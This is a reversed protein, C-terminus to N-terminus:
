PQLGCYKKFKQSRVTLPKAIVSFSHQHPRSRGIDGRSGRHCMPSALHRPSSCRSSASRAASSSGSRALGSMRWRRSGDPRASVSVKFRHRPFHSRLHLSCSPSSSSRGLSAVLQHPSACNSAGEGCFNSCRRRSTIRCPSSGCSLSAPFPIVLAANRVTMRPRAQRCSLRPGPHHHGDHHWCHAALLKCQALGHTRRLSTCWSKSTLDSWDATRANTSSTPLALATVRLPLQGHLIM